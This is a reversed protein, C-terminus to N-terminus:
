PIKTFYYKQDINVGFFALHLLSDGCGGFNVVRASQANVLTQRNGTTTLQLDAFRRVSISNSATTASCNGESGLVDFSSRQNTRM